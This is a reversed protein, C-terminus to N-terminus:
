CLNRAKRALRKVHAITWGPGPARPGSGRRLGDGGARRKLERDFAAAVPPRATRMNDASTSASNSAVGAMAFAALAAAAAPHIKM